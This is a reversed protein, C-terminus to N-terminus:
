WTVTIRAGVGVSLRRAADGNVAAVELYNSSGFLAVLAGPAAAGYTEVWRDVAREDVSVQLPGEPLDSRRICSILNGFHDQTIIVGEVRGRTITPIAPPLLIPSIPDGCDSARLEGAALSAGVPAFLDRGHFTASRRPLGLSPSALEWANRECAAQWLRSIVGNDPAVVIQRDLTAALTRRSTGVGPDVVVVHVTGPPYWPAAEALVFAARHIDQHPIQHTLDVIRTHPARALIVGKMAGVYADESGFDTLLTLLPITEAM